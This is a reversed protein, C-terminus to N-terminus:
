KYGEIKLGKVRSFHKENSTLLVENNELTVAAIMCDTPDLTQGKKKLDAYILGARSSSEKKLDLVPVALLTKMVKKKEKEPKKSLGIGVFLEFISPAAVGQGQHSKEVEKLKRVAAEDKRMLDILFSTDFLM